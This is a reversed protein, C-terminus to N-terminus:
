AISRPTAVMVKAVGAGLSRRLPSFILHSNLRLLNLYDRITGFGDKTDNHRYSLMLRGGVRVFFTGLRAAQTWGPWRYARSMTLCTGSTTPMLVENLARDMWLKFPDTM